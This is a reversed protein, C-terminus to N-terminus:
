SLSPCVAEIAALLAAAATETRMIRKGFRLNQFGQQQLSHLDQESFGGEPGIALSIDDAKQLQEVLSPWTQGHHPHLTISLGKAELKTLQDHWHLQPLQTRGSQEAAEILIRRWRQLRKDRKTGVLKLDSRESRVIHISYAGLETCKQIIHEIKENRCACQIIHIRCSMERNVDVFNQIQATSEHKSLQLISALYEGGQGDFFTIPDGPKARMVHRLYHAQDSPIMINKQQQQIPDTTYLRCHAM